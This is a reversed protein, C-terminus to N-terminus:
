LAVAYVAPWIEREALAAAEKLTKAIESDTAAADQISGIWAYLAEEGPMPPVQKMLAPLQDFFTGPDVNPLETKQDKPWPTRL